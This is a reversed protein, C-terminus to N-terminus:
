FLVDEPEPGCVQRRGDRHGLELEEHVVDERQRLSMTRPMGEEEIADTKKVANGSAHLNNNKGNFLFM